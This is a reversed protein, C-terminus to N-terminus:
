KMDSEGYPTRDEAVRTATRNEVLQRYLSEPAIDVEDGWCIAGFDRHIQFRRFFAPDAFRSFVGGKSIYPKLDAVGSRGDEFTVRIRYEEVYEASVVSYYM